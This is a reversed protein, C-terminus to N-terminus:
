RPDSGGHTVPASQGQAARYVAARRRTYTMAAVGLLTGVACTAIWWENDHAVLQDRLLLCVVGALAWLATGLTTIRVGDDAVPEIEPPEQSSM